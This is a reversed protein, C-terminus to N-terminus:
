RNCRREYDCDSCFGEVVVWKELDQKLKEALMKVSTNYNSAGYPDNFTEALHQLLEDAWVLYADSM